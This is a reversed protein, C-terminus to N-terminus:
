YVLLAKEAPNQTRYSRLYRVLRLELLYKDEANCYFCISWICFIPFVLEHHTVHPQCSVIYTLKQRLTVIRLDWHFLFLGQLKLRFVLMKKPITRRDAYAKPHETICFNPTNPFLKLRRFRNNEQQSFDMKITLISLIPNNYVPTEYVRPFLFNSLHESLASRRRAAMCWM